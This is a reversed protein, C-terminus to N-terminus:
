GLTVCGEGLIAEVESKLQPCFGVRLEDGVLQRRGRASDFSIMYPDAGRWRSLAQYLRLLRDRDSAQDGSERFVFTVAARVGSQDSLVPTPASDGTTSSMAPRDAPSAPTVVASAAADAAPATLTATAGATPAASAM